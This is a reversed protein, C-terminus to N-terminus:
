RIVLILDCCSMLSILGIVPAILRANNRAGIVQWGTRRTCARPLESMSPELPWAAVAHAVLKGEIGGGAPISPLADGSLYSAALSQPHMMM